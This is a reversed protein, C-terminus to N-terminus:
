FLSCYFIMSMFLYSGTCGNTVYPNGEYGGSCRCNCGANGPICDSNNSVCAYTTKNTKVEECTTNQAIGWELVVPKRTNDYRLVGDLHSLHHQLQLSCNGDSHHLQLPIDELDSQYQIGGPLFQWIAACREPSRSSLLWCWLLLREQPREAQRQRWMNVLM